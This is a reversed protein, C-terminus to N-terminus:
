VVKRKYVRVALATMDDNKNGGSLKVAYDLTQNALTQPNLAPVSRLFDIVASSTGFADSIGDTVLLIMDGPCLNTHCVSPKLDEIIGLPLSSGEVIKVGNEGIIFGYPAGYKIFDASCDDLDIVSLDLASFSEETNVALLKNVTNLILPSSLGAKYFSEILSLTASSIKEAEIGSGMGDSLAVLFKNKSIRTVAHTDGSKGSGDKVARALGFVADYEISHQFSLYCKDESIDARECLSLPFGLCNSLIREINNVSFEPAVVVMSVTTLRDEGYILLESVPIGKEFLASSISRELRSQFKLTSGSELALGRLIEAIGTAESALLNRGVCMNSQELAYSRYNALLRNLAYLTNQPKLCVDIVDKPLDILSLKGKAFGIDLAKAIGTEVISGKTKCRSYYDCSKCFSLVEKKISDKASEESNEKKNFANFASAMETFIASLDYLKGALMIRNRNIAQRVLQKERFSYLKEKLNKLPANPIISFLCAGSLVAILEGFAYAPYLGFLLQVLYDAVVVAIAASYRSLPCLSEAAIALILYSSVFNLDNYYVALSLGLVSSIITAIGTRYIYCVLLLIFVSIGKWVLPSSLNCVGIGTIAVVLAVSAFEEFGLKFKLGKETVAKTATTTFFCLAVTLILTLVRKEMVIDNTTSGLFIFGLFSLGLFVLIEYKPKVGFKRYFAISTTIVVAIIACSPILGFQGQIVFSLIFLVPTLFMSGGCVLVATFISASYPLITRELNNFLLFFIFIFIYKIVSIYDLSKFKNKM